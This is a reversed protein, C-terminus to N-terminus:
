DARHSGSPEDEGRIVTVLSANAPFIAGGTKRVEDEFLKISCAGCVIRTTQDYAGLAGGEDLMHPKHGDVCSQCYAM